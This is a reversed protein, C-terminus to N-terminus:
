AGTRAAAGVASSVAPAAQRAPGAGPGSAEEASLIVFRVIAENLRFLREMEKIQETAAQFRMLYYCGETQRAIRFALRRRGMNQASQVSGGVKKIQEEIQSAARAIDQETGGAKLIVLTEYGRTIM